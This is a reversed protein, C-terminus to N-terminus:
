NIWLCSAYASVAQHGTNPSVILHIGSGLPHTIQASPQTSTFNVWEGGIGTIYCIVDDASAEPVLQLDGTSEVDHVAYHASATWGSCTQTWAEAEFATSLGLTTDPSDRLTTVLHTGGGRPNLATFDYVRLYATPSNAVNGRFGSLLALAPGGPNVLDTEQTGTNTTSGSLTGLTSGCATPSPVSSIRSFAISGVTGGPPGPDPYGMTQLDTADYGAEVTWDNGSTGIRLYSGRFTPSGPLVSAASNQYFPGHLSTWYYFGTQCGPSDKCGLTETTSSHYGQRIPATTAGNIVTSAQEGCTDGAAFRDVHCGAPLTSPDQNAVYAAACAAWTNSSTDDDSSYATRGPKMWPPSAASYQPVKHHEYSMSSESATAQVGFSITTGSDVFDTGNPDDFVRSLGLRHCHTCETPRTTANADVRVNYTEWTQFDLGVFAYPMNGNNWVFEDKLLTGPLYNKDPM